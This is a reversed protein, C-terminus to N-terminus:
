KKRRRIRVAALPAMATIMIFLMMAGAGIKVQPNLSCRAGADASLPALSTSDSGDATAIPEAVDAETIEINEIVAAEGETVEEDEPTHTVGELPEEDACAPPTVSNETRQKCVSVPPSFYFRVGIAGPIEALFRYTIDDKELLVKKVLGKAKIDNFAENPRETIKIPLTINQIPQGIGISMILAVNEGFIRKSIKGVVSILYEEESNPYESLMIHFGDLPFIAKPIKLLESPRKGIGLSEPTVHLQPSQEEEVIEIHRMGDTGIKDRVNELEIAYANVAILALAVGVVFAIITMRKM